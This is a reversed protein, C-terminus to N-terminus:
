GTCNYLKNIKEVDLDSLHTAYGVPESCNYPKLANGIYGSERSTVPGHLVSCYDYPIGLDTYGYAKASFELIKTYLNKWIPNPIEVYDSMDFRLKEAYFGLM